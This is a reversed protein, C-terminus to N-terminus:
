YEFNIHHDIHFDFKRRFRCRIQHNIRFKIKDIDLLTFNITFFEIKLKKFNIYFNLKRRSFCRISYCCRIKIRDFDLELQFQNYVKRIQLKQFIQQIFSQLTIQFQRRRRKDKTLKLYKLNCFLICRSEFAEAFFEYEFIMKLTRCRLRSM